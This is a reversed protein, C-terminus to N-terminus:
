EVNCLEVCLDHMSSGYIPCQTKDPLAGTLNDALFIDLQEDAQLNVVEKNFDEINLANSGDNVTAM